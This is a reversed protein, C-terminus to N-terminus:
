KNGGTFDNFEDLGFCAQGFKSKGYIGVEYEPQPTPEPDPVINDCALMFMIVLVILCICVLRIKKM